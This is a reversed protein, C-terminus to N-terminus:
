QPLSVKPEPIHTIKIWEIQLESKLWDEQARIATELYSVIYSKARCNKEKFTIKYM